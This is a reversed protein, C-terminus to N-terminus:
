VALEREIKPYPDYNELVFDDITLDSYHKKSIKVKPLDKPARTLQELIGTVHDMGEMGKSEEPVRKNVFDLISRFELPDEAERCKKKLESLNEKYWKARENAGTYFHVDGFSHIFHRPKVNLEQAFIHTLMSYSAINFPVGLFMDCARQTLMLDLHEGNSNIQFMTHCPPIAMSPVEEPNWANIIHRASTINNKMNEITSAIQDIGKPDKVYYVKSEGNINLNVPLYKPWHLWQSGYVPGLEGWRVSFESDDKIRFVYDDKARYWDESFKKFVNSYLGEEVMSPLNYNFADDDWIHVNNDVLYKINSDSRM